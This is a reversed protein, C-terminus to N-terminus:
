PWDSEIQPRKLTTWQQTTYLWATLEVLNGIQNENLPEGAVGENECAVFKENAPRSGQAWAHWGVPYHQILQGQKPNSFTWSARRAPKALERLASSLSGEMSHYVAGERLAREDGGYGHKDSPGDLRVAFAAWELSM